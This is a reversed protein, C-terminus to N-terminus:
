GRKKRKLPKKTKTQGPPSAKDLAELYDKLQADGPSLDYAKQWAARAKPYYKLQIYASGLRKLSTIDEPELRLASELEKVALYFKSDYIYHLAVDKKNELVSVNPPKTDNIKLQPTEEELASIMRHFRGETPSLELAYRLADYAFLADEKESLWASLGDSAINWPKTSAPKIPTIASVIRLRGHLKQYGQNTPDAVLMNETKALADAYRGKRILAYCVDKMGVSSKAMKQRAEEIMNRATVQKPDAKIVLNWYDMAKQYNGAMYFGFAKDYYEHMQVAQADPTGSPAEAAIASALPLFISILILQRM